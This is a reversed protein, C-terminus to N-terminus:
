DVYTAKVRQSQSLYLLWLSVLILSAVFSWIYPSIIEGLWRESSLIMFVLVVLVLKIILLTLLFTKALIVAGWDTRSFLAYGAYISFPILGLSFIMGFIIPGKIMQQHYTMPNNFSSYDIILGIITFLPNIFVLIMCFFKLLGEVGVLDDKQTAKEGPQPETIRLM